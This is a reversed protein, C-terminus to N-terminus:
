LTYNMILPAHDSFKTDKYISGHTFKGQLQKSVIQYDLRWGVDKAYAQGRNSWWTYGAIEPYLSRWTDIYGLELMSSFWQREEPLFGSNKQNAKWNKLDIAQHAINLDGCIIYPEPGIIQQQLLPAYYDLFEFKKAQRIAGSSGSPLYISVLRYEPYILELYRGEVDINLEGFGLKAKLPKIKSYIAVGSYGRKIAPHFFAHYNNWNILEKPIDEITAKIEQLCIIDADQQELWVFLGKKHASRIGNVNLTIVKM